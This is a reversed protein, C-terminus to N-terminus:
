SSRVGGSRDVPSQRNQRREGGHHVQHRRTSTLRRGNQGRSSFSAIRTLDPMACDAVFGWWEQVASRVAADPMCDRPAAADQETSHRVGRLKM